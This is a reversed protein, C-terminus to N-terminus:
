KNGQPQIHCDWCYPEVANQDHCKKCFNDYDTHCALCTKQLSTEWEKGTSAVYVRKEQRLAQDRWEILLAMHNARMWEAPEVCELAEGNKGVPKALEPYDYKPSFINIWVPCTFLVVFLIIGTIVYKSNYM